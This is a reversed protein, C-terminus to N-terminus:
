AIPRLNRWQRVCRVPWQAIPRYVGNANTGYVCNAKCRVRWQAIPGYVGMLTQMTFAILKAGYVGNLSQVRCTMLTQVTFAILKANYAGNLSQVTCAMLTQVTVWQAMAGVARWLTALPSRTARLGQDTAFLTLARFSRFFLETASETSSKKDGTM